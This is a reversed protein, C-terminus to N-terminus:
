YLTPVKGNDVANRGESGLSMDNVATNSRKQDRTEVITREKEVQKESKAEKEAAIRAYGQQAMNRVWEAHDEPFKPKSIPGATYM